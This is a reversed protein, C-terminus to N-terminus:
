LENFQRCKNFNLTYIKQLLTVSNQDIKVSVLQKAIYLQQHPKTQKAPILVLELHSRLCHKSSLLATKVTRTNDNHM